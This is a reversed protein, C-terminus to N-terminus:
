FILTILNYFKVSCFVDKIFSLIYLCLILKLVTYLIFAKKKLNEDIECQTNNGNLRDVKDFKSTVDIFNLLVQFVRQLLIM